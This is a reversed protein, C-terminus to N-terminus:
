KLKSFMYRYKRMQQYLLERVRGIIEDSYREAYGVLIREVDKKDFSFHLNYGYMKEAADLQEDFSRCFPKAEIRELCEELSKGLGFDMATDALLALGNDFVLSLRYVKEETKYIVAINNTHRDENLFFADLALLVSIYRGFDVLGTFEIVNEVMYEIRSEVEPIKGMEASLSKGIHQRFLHEITVLEENEDLFNSSKCGLYEKDKYQMQVPFYRVYDKVDSYALLQSVIVESLGEYGMYDAKYWINDHKWKLQNGKSSHGSRKFPSFDNLVIGEM